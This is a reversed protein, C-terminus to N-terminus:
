RRAADALRHRIRDEVAGVRDLEDVDGGVVEDLAKLFALDVDGLLGLLRELM